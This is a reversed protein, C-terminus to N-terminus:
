NEKTSYTGTLHTKLSTTEYSIIKYAFCKKCRFNTGATSVGCCEWEHDEDSKCIQNTLTESDPVGIADDVLNIEVRLGRKYPKCDCKKDWKTCWGCPTEYTCPKESPQVSSGTNPPKVPPMPPPTYQPPATPRRFKPTQCGTKKQKIM